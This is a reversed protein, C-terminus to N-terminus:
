AKVSMALLARAVDQKVFYVNNVQEIGDISKVFVSKRSAADFFQIGNIFESSNEFFQIYRKRINSLGAVFISMGNDELLSAGRGWGNTAVEHQFEWQANFIKILAKGSDFVWYCGDVVTVTHPAHLSLPIRKGTRLNICGGNGQSKLVRAAVRRLLQKGEVHHVLAYLDGDMGKFIQNLHFKDEVGDTASSDDANVVADRLNLRDIAGSQPCYSVIEDNGTNALYLKDDIFDMEHVDLLSGIHIDSVKKAVLDLQKLDKGGSYYLTNGCPSLALSAVGLEGVDNFFDCREVHEGPLLIQVSALDKRGMSRDAVKASLSGVILLASNKPIM